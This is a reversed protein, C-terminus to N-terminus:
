LNLRRRIDREYDPFYRQIVSLDFEALIAEKPEHELLFEFSRRILEEVTRRGGTLKQYYGPTVSVRHSSRADGEIVSVRYRHQEVPEVEIRTPM